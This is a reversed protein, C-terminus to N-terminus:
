GQRHECVIKSISPFIEGFRKIIAQAKATIDPPMTTGTWAHDFGNRIKALARYFNSLDEWKDKMTEKMSKLKDVQVKDDDNFDWNIEDNGLMRCFLEAYIRSNKPKKDNNIYRWTMGLSGICERMVTFAQMFYGYKGLLKIIAQQLDYYTADYHQEGQKGALEGFAKIVSELLLREAQTAGVMREKVVALAKDAVTAVENVNINTLCLGLQKLADVLTPDALHGFQHDPATGVMEALKRTDAMDVVRGIADAWENIAYFDVINVIPFVTNKSQGQEFMGYLVHTITAKRVKRIFHIATSFVVSFMRWGHTVDFVIQDDDRVCDVIQYLWDWYVASDNVNDNIVIKEPEKNAIEAIKEFLDKGHVSFAKNTSIIYIADFSKADLLELGAVQVYPTRQAEVGELAYLCEEYNGTGLMALYVRRSM